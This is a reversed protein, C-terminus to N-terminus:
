RHRNWSLALPITAFPTVALSVLSTFFFLLCLEAIGDIQKPQQYKFYFTLSTGILWLLLVIVATSARVLKKRCAVVYALATGGLILLSLSLFFFALIYRDTQTPNYRNLLSFLGVYLGFCGLIAGIVTYYFWTRGTWFVSIMNATIIWFGIVTLIINVLIGGGLLSPILLVGFVESGKVVATVCLSLLLACQILLITWAITKVMNWFLTINFDRDALPARALFGKLETRGPVNIGEGLIVGVIVAAFTSFVITLALFGEVIDRLNSQSSNMLVVFLNLTLDTIGFIVGGAIVARQCSDRWHIRALSKQRSLPISQNKAVTGTSLDNYWVHIKEWQRSSIATGNRVKGFARIGQCWAAVCVLLMTVFESLTVRNWPVMYENFGNPFYRFFFWRFLVVTLGLCFFLRAFSPAHMSWFISHGVLIMMSIFLLPGLLPWYDTLWNEDFFLVRYAGNTVVQLVVVLGMTVLMMWSAISSSSVPLGFTMKKTGQLGQFCAALFFICSFFLYPFHFDILDHNVQNFQEGQLWSVTRVLLPGLVLTGVALLAGFWARKCFVKTTVYLANAM